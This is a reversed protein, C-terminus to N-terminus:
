VEGSGKCKPCNIEGSGNCKPCDSSVISASQDPFLIGDGECKPCEISEDGNCKPCTEMKM